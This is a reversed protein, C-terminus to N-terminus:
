FLPLRSGRYHNMIPISWKKSFYGLNARTFAAKFFMYPALLGIFYNILRQKFQVFHLVTVHHVHVYVDVITVNILVIKTVHNYM